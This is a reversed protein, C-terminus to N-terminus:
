LNKTSTTEVVGLSNSLPRLAHAPSAGTDLRLAVYPLSFHLQGGSRGRQVWKPVIATEWPERLLMDMCNGAPWAILKRM